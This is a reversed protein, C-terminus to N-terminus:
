PRVLIRGCHECTVLVDEPEHKLRDIETAPLTLHCGDCRGGVLRAAGIGGLRSRIGEYTALLAAGVAEARDVRQAALDAMEAGADAEIAAIDAVVTDRRAVTATRAEDLVDVGADIPEREDLVALVRDELDSRRQALHELDAAMAQLERAASVEGGYLRARVARARAETAELDAELTRQRASVEDRAAAAAQRRGALEVLSADLAALEAREPLTALRHRHRDLETDLDQVALLTAMQPATM